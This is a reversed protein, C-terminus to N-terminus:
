NSKRILWQLFKENGKKHALKLYDDGNKDKVELPSTLYLEKAIPYYERDIALMLATRKDNGYKLDTRAKHKLLLKVGNLDNNLVAISLSTSKDDPARFNIDVKHDVILREIAQLRLLEEDESELGDYSLFLEMVANTDNLSELPKNKDFDIIFQYDSATIATSLNMTKKISHNKNQEGCGMFLLILIVIRM